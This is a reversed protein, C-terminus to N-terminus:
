RRVNQRILELFQETNVLVVDDNLLERFALMDDVTYSSPANVHVVVASYADISGVDRSAANLAAAITAPEHPEAFKDDNKMFYRFSVVPVDGVFFYAGQWKAYGLYNMYLFGRVDPLNGVNRKMFTEYSDAASGTFVDADDMIVMYGLGCEKLMTNTMRLYDGVFEHRSPFTYGAGSLAGVYCNTAPLNKQYWNHVPVMNTRLTPPYMWTLSIEAARPHTIYTNRSFLDLMYSTNDGDSFIITAYHVNKRTPVEPVVAQRGLPKLQKAALVSLSMTNVGPVTYIGNHECGFRVDMRELNYPVGWGYHPSNPRLLYYLRQLATGDSKANSCWPYRNAVAFDVMTWPFASNNVIATLDFRSANREIYDALWAEDKDRADALQPLTNYPAKAALAPTLIVADLVGALSAAIYTKEFQEDVLVYGRAKKLFLSTIESLSKKTFTYGSAKMEAMWKTYIQGSHLFIAPRERNVIGALSALYLLEEYNNNGVEARTIEVLDWNESPYSDDLEADSFDAGVVRCCGQRFNAGAVPMKWIYRVNEEDRTTIRFTLSSASLDAPFLVMRFSEPAEGAADAELVLSNVFGDGRVEGCATGSGTLDATGRLAFLTLAADSARLEIREIRQGAPLHAPRVEAMSMVQVFELEPAKETPDGGFALPRAVMCLYDGWAGEQQVPPLSFTMERAGSVGVEGGYPYAAYFVRNGVAGGRVITGAITATGSASVTTVEFPQNHTAENDFLAFRSGKTWASQLAMGEFAPPQLVSLTIEAPGAPVLEGPDSESCAVLAPLLATLIYKTKM